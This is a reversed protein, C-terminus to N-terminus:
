KAPPSAVCSTRVRTLHPSRPAVRFLEEATARAADTHGSACLAQVRTALREEHLTGRSFQAEHADLLDLARRVEGRDLASRAERLLKVEQALSDNVEAPTTVVPSALAPPPPPAVSMAPAPSTERPAESKARIRGAARLASPAARLESPPDHPLAPAGSPGQAAFSPVAPAGNSAPQEPLAGFVDSPDAGASTAIATATGGAATAHASSQATERPATPSAHQVYALAGAGIVGALVAAGITQRTSWSAARLATGFTGNAHPAHSLPASPPATRAGLSARVATLRSEAPAFGERARRLILKAEPSLDNM